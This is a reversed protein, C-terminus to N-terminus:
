SKGLEMGSLIVKRREIDNGNFRYEVDIENEGFTHDFTSFMNAQEDKRQRFFRKEPSLASDKVQFEFVKTM